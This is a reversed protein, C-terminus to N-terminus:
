DHDSNGGDNKRAASVTEDVAIRYDTLDKEGTDAKSFEGAAYQMAWFMREEHTYDHLIGNITILLAKTIEPPPANLEHTLHKDTMEIM